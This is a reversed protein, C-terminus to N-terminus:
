RSSRGDGLERRQADEEGGAPGVQDEHGVRNGLDENPRHDVGRELEVSPVTLDVHAEHGEVEAVGAYEEAAHGSMDRKWFDVQARVDSVTRLSADREDALEHGPTEHGGDSARGKVLRVLGRRHVAGRRDAAM